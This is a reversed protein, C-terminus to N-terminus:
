NYLYDQIYQIRDEAIALQQLHYKYAPMETKVSSDMMEPSEVEIMEEGFLTKAFDPNFYIAIIWDFSDGKAEEIAEKLLEEESM